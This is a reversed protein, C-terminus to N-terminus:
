SPELLDIRAIATMRTQRRGQGIRRNRTSSRFSPVLTRRPGVWQHFQCSALIRQQFQKWDFSGYRYGTGSDCGVDSRIGRHGTRKRGVLHSPLVAAYIRWLARAIQSGLHDPLRFWSASHHRTVRRIDFSRAGPTLDGPASLKHFGFAVSTPVIASAHNAVAKVSNVV